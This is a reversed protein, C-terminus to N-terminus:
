YTSGLGPTYGGGYLFHPIFDKWVHNPHPIIGDMLWADPEYNYTGKDPILNGSEDYACESGDSGRYKKDGWSDQKWERGESCKGNQPQKRPCRNHKNRNIHEYRSPFGTWDDLALGL